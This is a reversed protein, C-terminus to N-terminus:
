EDIGSWEQGKNVDWVGGCESYHCRSHGAYGWWAVLEPDWAYVRLMSFRLLLMVQCGERERASRLVNRLCGPKVMQNVPRDADPLDVM